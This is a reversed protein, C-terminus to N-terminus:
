LQFLLSYNLNNLQNNYKM